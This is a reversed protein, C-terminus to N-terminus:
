RWGGFTSFTLDVTEDNYIVDSANVGFLLETGNPVITVTGSGCNSITIVRGNVGVPLNVTCDDSGKDMHIVHDTATVNRTHMNGRLRLAMGFSM